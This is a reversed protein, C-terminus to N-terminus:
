QCCNHAARRYDLLSAKGARHRMHEHVVGFAAIRDKGFGHKRLSRFDTLIFVQRKAVNVFYIHCITVFCLIKVAYIIM